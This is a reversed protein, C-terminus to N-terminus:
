PVACCHLLATIQPRVARLQNLTHAFLGAPVRSLLFITPDDAQVAVESGLASALLGLILVWRRDAVRDSYRGVIPGAVLQLAGVFGSLMGVTKADGGLQIVRGPTLAFTLSSAAMDVLAVSYLLAFARHDAM